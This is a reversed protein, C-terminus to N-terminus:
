NKVIYNRAVLHSEPNLSKVIIPYDIFRSYYENFLRIGKRHKLNREMGHWSWALCTRCQCPTLNEFIPSNAKKRRYINMYFCELAM